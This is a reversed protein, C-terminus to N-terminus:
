EARPSGLPSGNPSYDRPGSKIFNAWQLAEILFKPEMRKVRRCVYKERLGNLFRNVLRKQRSRYSLHMMCQLALRQLEMAFENYTESPNQNRTM